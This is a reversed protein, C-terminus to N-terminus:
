FGKRRRLILPNSYKGSRRSRRGLAVHGWPTSPKKRGISTRGEGGGHPHDVPNTASGRVKPRRGLWRKSGAKGLGENNIDVNGVRGISALCSQSILRIENSPLRLTALQGEKAVVKAAAGAARVSQGGKGSKLEVNHIITGLPIRTLPLANGISVSADPGSTVIDGVGVGRPHLIYRKDGDTYKILCIFANRNPDYEISAVGGPVNLKDRRFDIERYLRKHGGGRHRSTIIGANNRGSKSTRHYTLQKHPKSETTEGFQLIARNRTGPTYAEYLRIAM